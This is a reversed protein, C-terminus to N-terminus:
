SLQTVTSDEPPCQSWLDQQQPIFFMLAFDTFSVWVSTGVCPNAGLKGQRGFLLLIM